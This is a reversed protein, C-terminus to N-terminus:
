FSGPWIPMEKILSRGLIGLEKNDRFQKSGFNVLNSRLGEAKRLSEQIKGLVPNKKKEEYKKGEVMVEEFLWGRRRDKYQQIIDSGYRNRM